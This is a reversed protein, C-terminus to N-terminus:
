RSRVVLGDVVVAVGRSTSTGSLYSAIGVAGPAALAATTDSVSIQPAAPATGAANWVTGTVANPGSGDVTAQLRLTTGPTYALGTVNVERLVTEAGNVVRSVALHVVNGPLLILKVRYDTTGVRRVIASVTTGGGTAATTVTSDFTMTLTGATVGALLASTSSGPGTLTQTGTRNAVAFAATGGAVTWAGGVDATGWGNTVTRGFDDAAVPANSQVTVPLTTTGTQGSDDTVTLTVPYTGSAPYVHTPTAGTGSTGDGFDWAWGTVTGDVDTSGSGDLYATLGAVQATATATPPVPVVTVSRSLATSGTAGDDDTVTLRITYTGSRAYRHTATPTAATAGDGFDWAWRSVMGDRDTSATGDVGVVAGDVTATASATPAANFGASGSSPGTATSWAGVAQNGSPDTAVPAYRYSAGPTLGTDTFALTPRSWFESAASYQWVTTPTTGAGTDRVVSYALTRDDPDWNAPFSLRLAGAGVATTSGVTFQAGTLSPGVRDPAVSPVAFRTLGQQGVGDVHLFEGGLVVYRSDGSVSWAAQQAGSVTGTDLAPFWTTLSPSPLGYNDWYGNTFHQVTGTAATTFALARQATGNPYAGVASCDHPHGVVYLQDPTPFVDYTDGHCDELWTLDGTATNASFAGEINSTGHFNFASGYVQSGSVQLSFFAANTGYAFLKQNVAFPQVAGTVPDLSGLGRAATGSLTSFNGAAVVRSGDPALALARVTNDATPAWALVAGTTASVAALRPRPQGGVSNFGGGLYVTSATPAIAFVIYDTTPRFTPDLVGTGIDFAAVRYRTQGDVSSFNGGIYLRKGDPSAAVTQVTGNVVPAFATMVGTTIDYSMLNSRTVENTGAPSGAPRASTFSGGAFVTNGVVVQSWVIGNIQATPLATATVASASRDVVPSAAAPVDAGAAPAGLVAALLGGVTVAVAVLGVGRRRVRATSPPRPATSAPM